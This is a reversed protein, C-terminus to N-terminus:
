APAPTTTQQAMAAERTGMIPLPFSAARTPWMANLASASPRKVQCTVSPRM